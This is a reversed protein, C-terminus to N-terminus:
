FGLLQLTDYKVNVIALLLTEDIPEEIGARLACVKFLFISQASSVNRVEHFDSETLDCIEM